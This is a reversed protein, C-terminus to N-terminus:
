HVWMTQEGIPILPKPLINTLPLLREGKGGAMIVVPLHFKRQNKSKKDKFLDEWFIVDVIKKDDDVIPMFDNRRERMFAKIQEKDDSVRAVHPM